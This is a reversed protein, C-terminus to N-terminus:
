DWASKLEGSADRVYPAWALTFLRVNINAKKPKVEVTELPAATADM